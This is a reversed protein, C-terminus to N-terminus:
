RAWGAISLGHRAAVADTRAIEVRDIAPAPGDSTAVTGAARFFAEIGGPTFLILIRGPADGVNSFRHVTGSPVFVFDGPAAAIPEDGVWIEFEGDLVYFAEDERHHVHLPTGMGEWFNAEVLGLAGDTEDRRGKVEFLAGQWWVAAPPAIGATGLQSKVM